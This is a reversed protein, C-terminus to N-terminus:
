LLIFWSKSNSKSIFIKKSIPFSVIERFIIRNQYFMCHHLLLIERYLFIKIQEIITRHLEQWCWETEKSEQKYVSKRFASSQLLFFVAVFVVLFINYFLRLVPWSLRASSYLLHFSSFVFHIISTVFFFCCKMYAYLFFPSLHSNFPSTVPFLMQFSFVHM